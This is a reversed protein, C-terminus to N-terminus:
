WGKILRLGKVFINLCWKIPLHLHKKHKNRAVFGPSTAYYWAIFKRGWKFKQLFQDRFKRLVLVEDADYSGYVMTAVYCGSDSNSGGSDSNSGSGGGSDSGDSSSDTAEDASKIFLITLGWILLIGIIVLAIIMGITRFIRDEEKAYMEVESVQESTIQNSSTLTQTEFSESSYIHIEDLQDKTSRDESTEANDSSEIRTFTATLTDGKVTPNNASFVKGESDHIYVDYKDINEPVKKDKYFGNPSLKIKNYSVCGTIFLVVLILPLYRKM